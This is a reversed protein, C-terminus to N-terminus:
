SEKSPELGCRRIRHLLTQIHLYGALYEINIYERGNFHDSSDLWSTLDKTAGTQTPLKGRIELLFNLFVRAFRSNKTLSIDPSLFTELLFNGVTTGTMFISAFMTLRLLPVHNRSDILVLKLGM